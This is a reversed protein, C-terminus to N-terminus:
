CVVVPQTNDKVQSQLFGKKEWCNYKPHDSNHRQSPNKLQSRCSQSNTTAAAVCVDKLWAQVSQRQRKLHIITQIVTATGDLDM